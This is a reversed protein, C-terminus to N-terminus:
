NEVNVTGSTTGLAVRPTKSDDGYVFLNVAKDSGNVLNIKAASKDDSGTRASSIVLLDISDGCDFDAGAAFNEAPYMQDGLKYSVKYKGNKGNVTITINQLANGEAGLTNEGLADKNLGLSVNNKGAEYPHVAVFLDYDSVVTSANEM